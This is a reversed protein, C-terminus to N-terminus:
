ARLLPSKEGPRLTTELGFAALLSRNTRVHETVEPIRLEGGALALFLLLQDASHRDVAASDSSFEVVSDVADDAVEEAPKGPEGLADFGSQAHECDLRVAVASGASAADAYQVTWEVPTLGESDLREVARSAQREAVSQDALDTSAVSYVRARNEAGGQGLDFASLSSPGVRLTAEGGGDPYFGRRGVEVTANLRHQRLLPLKSWRWFDMTPSWKVDTGGRATVVLPNELVAALPLVTDFLLTISGATGIDVEYDGSAVTEPRFTVKDSGVEADSVEAECIDALLEVAALHQPRLGPTQRGGRVDTMTFPEGSVGSLALASRLLQGGGDSGDIELM